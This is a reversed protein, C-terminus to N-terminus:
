KPPLRIYIFRALRAFLSNPRPQGNRTGPPVALGAYPCYGRTALSARWAKLPFDDFHVQANQCSKGLRAFSSRPASDTARGNLIAYEAPQCEALGASNGRAVAFAASRFRLRLSASVPCQKPGHTPSHRNKLRSFRLRNERRAPGLMPSPNPRHKPSQKQDYRQPEVLRRAQASPRQGVQPARLGFGVSNPLHIPQQEQPEKLRATRRWGVRRVAVRRPENCEGNAVFQKFFLSYHSESLFRRERIPTSAAWDSHGFAGARPLRASSSGSLFIRQEQSGFPRRAQAGPWEVWGRLM